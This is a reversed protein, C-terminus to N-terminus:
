QSKPVSRHLNEGQVNVRNGDGQFYICTYKYDVLQVSIINIYKSSLISVPVEYIVIPM